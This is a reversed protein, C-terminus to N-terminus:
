SGYSIFEFPNEIRPTSCRRSRKEFRVRCTWFSASSYAANFPRFAVFRSPRFGQGRIVRRVFQSLDARRLNARFLARFQFGVFRLRQGIQSARGLCLSRSHLPRM